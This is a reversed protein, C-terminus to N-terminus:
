VAGELEGVVAWAVDVLAVVALGVVVFVFAGFFVDDM